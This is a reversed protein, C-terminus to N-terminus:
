KKITKTKSVELQFITQDIKTKQFIPGKLFHKNQHIGENNGIMTIQRTM